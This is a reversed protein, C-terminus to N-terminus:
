ASAETYPIFVPLYILLAFISFIMGGITGAAFDFWFVEDPGDFLFPILGLVTSIVTLMIPKIKHNFAKVYKAPASRRSRDAAYQSTLYIGANVVIGCLMVFAAFGGQDFTFDSLGFVLFPGIFAVPIMLIVTLPYNFSEFTMCCMMYIVAIVLLILLTNRFGTKEDWGHFAPCEMKYGIPLVNENFHELVAYSFKKSLEYSGIFDYGVTIEYSQNNRRIPLGTRSKVISGIESLRVKVSDATTQSNKVHWLDFSDAASSRLVVGVNDGDAMVPNLSRDFLTSSLRNYYSYPSTGLVALQRFDYDLSFETGATRYYDLMMEPGSVRRNSALYSILSDAYETLRDYGYGSLRFSHSKYDSVVNNNFYSDNIGWVRWVAGGLNMAMATVKSKLESPFSTNEAEPCFGVEIIADDYSGVTTLFTEVEDFRSLYNEMSKVVENLQAVTCGEPMGAHIYLLDRGPERYYDSKDLVKYFLYGSGAFALLLVTAYIWRHRRGREMYRLYLRNLRVTRRRLRVTKAANGSRLPFRDLLSPVFFWATLLSVGLNIMIVKAFDELNAKDKEPLLLIVCLAGITTATAGLLAPFVSRDRYYSYHDAMIISTDIIISISVTIGALTYIHVPLSFINYFLVATALNVAITAFIVALYRFSRSVIFVFLLLILICLGTRFYIKDLESSIYESADYSLSVTIDDPFSRQLESMRTKVNATTKLLNTGTSADVSLMVTNLGNMRFYSNPVAEKYKWEAIERLYVIRGGINAVPIDGIDGTRRCALKVNVTRNGSEALGIVDSAYWANFAAAIGGAEIGYIEAADSDYVIEIEYPTAGWFSVKDVGEISSIPLSVYGTIFKELEASPVPSKFIYTLATRGGSGGGASLVPYSVGDPLRERANRIRSAAELRVADMDAGKRFRLTISGLGRESVSSVSSCDRIGSLIGELVSTAEAEIVRESADPWSFSVTLTRGSKAPAYQVNLLPITAVGALSIVTMLLLVTFPPIRKM